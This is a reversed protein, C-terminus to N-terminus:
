PAQGNRRERQGGSNSQRHVCTTQLRGSSRLFRSLHPYRRWRSPPSRHPRSPTGCTVASIVTERPGSRRHRKSGSLCAYYRLQTSTMRM